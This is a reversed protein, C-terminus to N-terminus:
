IKLKKFLMPYVGMVVFTVVFYRMIRAIDDFVGAGDLIMNILSKLLFNLCLYILFGGLIRVICKWVKNTNEFNVHREEFEITLYFGAMIGLASFYDETNCYLVGAASILFIIMNMMWRRKVKKQLWHLLIIILIGMIWGVLVDTPYHVGVVVRSLGILFTLSVAIGWLIKKRKYVPLSGYVIAANTSHGSPFSFGQAGIDYIDADSVVPRLCKVGPNDFYPRRRLVVNKLMPNWVLGVVIIQGLTKGLEKDYCWYIFGLVAILVLEEGFLTFFSALKVGINGAISQLWQMFVPEWEFYFTIGPNM